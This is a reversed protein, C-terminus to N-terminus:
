FDGFNAFDIQIAGTASIANGVLDQGYFTISAITVLVTPSTVLAALPPEQKASIRVLEFGLSLTSGIQITGTIVGDIPYPVDVGPTNRGDARTYVVHYRTITVENNSSPAAATGATGINKPVLALTVQGSDSFYTPCPSVATCPLPTTVNTLVDSDLPNGPTGTTPGGRSGTLINVVMFMPSSGNRVVSGCSLTAAAVGVTAALIKLQRMAIM